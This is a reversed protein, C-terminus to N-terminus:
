PLSAFGVSYRGKDFVTYVNKMFPVGIVWKEKFNPRTSGLINFICLNNNMISTDILDRPDVMYSVGGFTFIFSPKATCPIFLKYMQNIEKGFTAEPIFEKISVLDQYPIFLASSGTDILAQQQGSNYSTGEIGVRDLTITWFGDTTVVPNYVIDGVFKSSDYGGIYLNSLRDTDDLTRGLFVSFFPGRILNSKALISVPTLAGIRSSRDLAFGIIGDYPRQLYNKTLTRVLGFIQDPVTIDGMKFDSIGIYGTVTGGFYNIRFPEHNTQIGKADLKNKNGCDTCGIEPVWLDSSGTDFKVTFEQDGFRIPFVYAGDKPTNTLQIEYVPARKYPTADITFLITAVLLIIITAKRM